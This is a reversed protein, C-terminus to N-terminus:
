KKSLAGRSSTMSLEFEPKSKLEEKFKDKINKRVPNNADKRLKERLKIMASFNSGSKHESEDNEIFIKPIQEM